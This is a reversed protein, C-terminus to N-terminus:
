VRKLRFVRKNWVFDYLEKASKTTVKITTGYRPLEYYLSKDFPLPMVSKTVNLLRGRNYIFFDLFPEFVEDKDNYGVAVLYSGDSRKFLCTFIDTQAGDGPAFLYGNPIDVIAGRKPNLMWHLRQGRNAEFYKDPLLMYYDVVTRPDQRSQASAGVLTGISVLALLILRKLM